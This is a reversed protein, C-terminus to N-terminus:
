IRKEVRLWLLWSALIAFILGFQWFFDHVFSFLEPNILSLYVTAVIRALNFFFLSPLAFALFILKKKWEISPTALALAFLAYMSKWGTCDMDIEVFAIKFDKVAILSAQKLSAQIGIAQLIKYSLFAVLEQLPKYSFNLYLLIYLPIALINFEVLFWLVQLLKKRTKKKM